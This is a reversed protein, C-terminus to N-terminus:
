RVRTNLFSGCPPPAPGAAFLLIDGLPVWPEGRAANM